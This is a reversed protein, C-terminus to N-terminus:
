SRPPARPSAETERERRPAALVVCPAHERELVVAALPVPAHGALPAAHIGACTCHDDRGPGGSETPCGPESLHHRADAVEGAVLTALLLLGALARGTRAWARAQHLLRGFARM